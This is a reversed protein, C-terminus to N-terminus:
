FRFSNLIGQYFAEMNSLAEGADGLPTFFFSYIRGNRVLVARRNLDQGPLNDLMVAEVGDVTIYGRATDIGQHAYLAEWETAVQELTRGNAEEVSISVLPDTHNMMSQSVLEVAGDPLYVPAYAAPYLLCYGNPRGAAAPDCRHAAPM